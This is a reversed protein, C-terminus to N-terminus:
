KSGDEYEDLLRHIVGLRDELQHQTPGMPYIDTMSHIISQKVNLLDDKKFHPKTM